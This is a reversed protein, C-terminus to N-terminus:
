SQEDKSSGEVSEQRLPSPRYSPRPGAVGHPVQAALNQGGRVSRADDRRVGVGDVSRELQVEEAREGSGVDPMPEGSGIALKFKTAVHVAPAADNQYDEGDGTLESADFAKPEDTFNTPATADVYRRFLTWHKEVLELMRDGDIGDDLLATRLSYTAEHLEAAEQSEFFTGDVALFGTVQDAM